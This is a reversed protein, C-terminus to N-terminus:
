FDFTYFKDTKHKNDYVKLGKLDVQVLKISGEKIYNLPIWSDSNKTAKIVIEDIIGTNIEIEKALGITQVSYSEDQPSIVLAVNPNKNINKIKLTSDKSIFYLKKKELNFHYYIISATPKYDLSTTSIVAFNNNKIYELAQNLENEM